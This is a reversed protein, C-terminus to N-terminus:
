HECDRRRPGSPANGNHRGACRGHGRHSGNRARRPIGQIVLGDCLRLTSPDLPGPRNMLEVVTRIVEDRTLAATIREYVYGWELTLDGLYGFVQVPRGGRHRRDRHDIADRAAPDSSPILRIQNFDITSNGVRNLHDYVQNLLTGPQGSKIQASALYLHWRGDASEAPLGLPVSGAGAAVVSGARSTRYPNRSGREGGLVWFAVDIDIGSRVLDSILKRGGEILSTVLLEAVM